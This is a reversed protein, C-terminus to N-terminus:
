KKVKKLMNLSLDVGFVVEARKTLESALRGDGVGLDLISDSPQILKLFEKKDFSDLWPHDKRYFKSYQDYGSRSDSFKM